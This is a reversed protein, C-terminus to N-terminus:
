SVEPKQKGGSRMVYYALTTREAHYASQNQLLRNREVDRKLQSRTETKRWLADRQRKYVDLHTYSVTNHSKLNIYKGTVRKFFVNEEYQVM